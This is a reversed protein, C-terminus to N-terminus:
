KDAPYGKFYALVLPNYRRAFERAAEVFRRDREPSLTNGRPVFVTRAVRFSPDHRSIGPAPSGAGAVPDYIGIFYIRGRREEGAFFRAPDTRRFWRESRGAVSAEIPLLDGRGLCPLGLVACLLLALRKM